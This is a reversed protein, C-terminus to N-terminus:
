EGAAEDLLRRYDNQITDLETGLREWEATSIEIDRRLEGLRRAQDGGVKADPQSFLDIIQQQEAELAIV